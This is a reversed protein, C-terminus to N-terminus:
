SQVRGREWKTKGGRWIGCETSELGIWAAAYAIAKIYSLQYWSCGLNYPNLHTQVSPTATCMNESFKRSMPSCLEEHCKPMLLGPNLTLSLAFHFLLSLGLSCCGLRFGSLPKYKTDSGSGLRINVGIVPVHLTFVDHRFDLMMKFLGQRLMKNTKNIKTFTNQLYTAALQVQLILAM